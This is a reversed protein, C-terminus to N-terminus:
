QCVSFHEPLPHAPIHPHIMSSLHHNMLLLLQNLSCLYKNSFHIKLYRLLQCQFFRHLRFYQQVFFQILFLQSQLPLVVISHYIPKNYKMSQFLNYNWNHLYLYSMIQVLRINNDLINYGNHLNLRLHNTCLRCKCRFFVFWCCGLGKGM